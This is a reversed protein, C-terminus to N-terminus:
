LVEQAELHRPSVQCGEVKRQGATQNRNKVPPSAGSGSTVDSIGGPTAKDLPSGNIGLAEERLVEEPAPKWPDFRATSSWLCGGARWSLRAGSELLQLLSRLGGRLEVQLFSPLQLDESGAPPHAALHSCGPWATPATMRARALRETARGRPWEVSVTCTFTPGSGRSQHRHIVQPRSQPAATKTRTCSSALLLLKEGGPMRKFGTPMLTLAKTWSRRTGTPEISSSEASTWPRGDPGEGRPDRQAHPAGARRGRSRGQIAAQTWSAMTAQDVKHDWRARQGRTRFLPLESLPTKTLSKRLSHNGCPILPYGQFALGATDSLALLLSADAGPQASRM